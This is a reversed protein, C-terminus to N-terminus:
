AATFGVFVTSKVHSAIPLPRVLLPLTTPSDATGCEHEPKKLRMDDNVLSYDAFNTKEFLDHPHLFLKPRKHDCIHGM